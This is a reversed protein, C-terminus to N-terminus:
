FCVVGLLSPPVAAKPPCAVKYQLWVECGPDSILFPCFTVPLGINYSTIAIFSPLNKVSSLKIHTVDASTVYKDFLPELWRSPCNSSVRCWEFARMYSSINSRFSCLNLYVTLNSTSLQSQGLVGDFVVVPLNWLNPWPQPLHPHYMDARQWSWRGCCHGLRLFM